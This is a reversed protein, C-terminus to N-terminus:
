ASNACCRPPPTPTGDLAWAKSPLSRLAPRREAAEPEARRTMEALMLQTRAVEYRPSWVPGEGHTAVPDTVQEATTM